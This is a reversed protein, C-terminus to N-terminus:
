QPQVGLADIEADSLTVTTSSSHGRVVKKPAIWGQNSPTPITFRFDKLPQNAVADLRLANKNYGISNHGMEVLSCDSLAICDRDASTAQFDCNEIIVHDVQKGDANFIQGYNDAGWVVCSGGNANITKCNDIRVTGGIHGAITFASAGEVRGPNTATCNQILIDGYGSPGSQGRNCIQIMTRGNGIASCDVISSDGQVNDAYLFHEINQALQHCKEVRFQTPGHFRFWWKNLKNPDILGLNEFQMGLFPGQNMYSLFGRQGAAEVTFNAFKLNYPALLGSGQFSMEGNITASPRLGRITLDRVAGSAWTVTNVNWKSGGGISLGGNHVGTFGIDDGPEAMRMALAISNWNADPPKVWTQQTQVHVVKDPYCIWDPRM